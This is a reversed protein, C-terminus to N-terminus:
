VFVLPRPKAVGYGQAYDVGLAKIRQLIADNEVFEAITKVGMVHGIRTIAEVMADDVSNEIINKIFGGDIKLYDVPLTKLYAFSSMGSGFDDLSFRCGYRQLESIFQSAKTLNAIAVTETIEFCISQPPVQYLGFQERLFSIFQDDNISTGSLNIAYITKGDHEALSLSMFLTKIVWRDITPMLNYREAAPIFAMPAVLNGEEDRLRLLIEYHIEQTVTPAIAAITQSYLCFRNEALAKTIRSVWQMEGRQQLLEEDDSQFVHVRNRGKNKAAYCAADAYSLLSVRSEGDANIKVLGISAGISFINDQWVFRFEQITERLGDAIGIAKQLSCQYLLVGFEDGGIRALIDTQRIKNQLLTTIQRLLEDGAAHGCTDNVIKFQDLDLYCLAHELNHTKAGNVAQDLCQEFEHRNAIGTLSDHSAQWTIQRSLSRNQTCDHFVMVAGVIQNQRDRIPAASDDIAIEKDDRTVLVTHNALGVIQGSKLAKEVPNEAPERTTEHFIRFVERLPLGKAEEQSWGTLMEAVPNFYEIKSTADTTIVADGISHLTVQALEKEHFLEEEMRKRETIDVAVGGVYKCGDSGQFPFKFVLWYHLSGDPTPVIELLEVAQGTALVEADNQRVQRATEEPLWDFDTKGRLTVLELNFVRELSENVYVFRGAEDKMFALTPSNNMFAQFRAESEQLSVELQKRQLLLGLQAAITLLNEVLQKDEPAAACKFFVLVALVQHNVVVPIGLGAKIGNELAISQRLFTTGTQKSCDEQWEPQQLTWVRGPLGVGLAFTFTESVARFRQIQCGHNLHEDDNVYWASSCQLIHSKACPIWAEGYDWYCTKCVLQLVQALASNFDPSEAIAFAMTKLFRLQEQPRHRDTIDSFSTVAAYPRSESPHFLPQSNVSIWTLRGDPKHIGMIVDRCPEGTRLTSTAPHQNEPFPSGDEHITQWRPDLSTRGMMQDLSLGLIEEARLNSALIKSDTDQLVIGEAMATILSRYLEESKQLATEIQKRLSIDKHTGAMRLANGDEDRIVVKGYNAIWKWEGSKTLVRYDFDYPHESDQLHANLTEMVWPQDEPHILREWTSVNGPLEGVSYGLMELWRPSLYVEDTLIKWDWLGDGSGELSLQLREESEQLATETQIRKTIDRFSFVRGVPRHGIWQPRTRLEFIRGDKFEWIDFTKQEPRNLMQNTVQLFTEPEQFQSAIFLLISQDQEWQFAKLVSDPVQWMEIFQTNCNIKIGQADLVLIGDVISELTAQLLSNSKLLNYNTLKLRAAQKKALEAFYLVLTVLLSMFLGELLVLQAVPTVLFKVEDTINSLEKILINEWSNIAQWLFLNATLVGFGISLPFWRPLRDVRGVALLQLSVGLILLGLATPIAVGTLYGWKYTTTLGSLYGFLAVVAIAIAGASSLGAVILLRSSMRVLSLCLSAIGLLTFGLATNPSPRGPLPSNVKFLFQQVPESIRLTNSSTPLSKTLYDQIFLQDIGFNVNFIYQALTLGGIIVVLLSLGAALRRWRKILALLAWGSIFFALATNYRMPPSDPLVQILATFHIHWAVMVVFGLIASFGGAFLAMIQPAKTIIKLTSSDTM